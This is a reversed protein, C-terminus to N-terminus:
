KETWGFKKDLDVEYGDLMEFNDSVFDKVQSGRYGAELAEEDVLDMISDEDACYEDFYESYVVVGTLLKRNRGFANNCVGMVVPCEVGNCWEELDQKTGFFLNKVANTICETTECGPLRKLINEAEEATYNLGNKKSLNYIERCDAPDVGISSLYEVLEKGIDVRQPKSYEENVFEEFKKIM